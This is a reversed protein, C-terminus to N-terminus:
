EALWKLGNARLFAHIELVHAGYGKGDGNGSLVGIVLGRRDLLPGGSRGGASVKAVEWCRTAEREGPKQVRREVAREERCTPADGESCGVALAVVEAGDPVRNPPCLRATGPMPDRTALRLVALDAGAARALVEASRYVRAPEPYSKASFTAVELSDAEAVVHAATLVYVFPGEQKVIVGSGESMKARNTVRVTATIAASQDARTFTPSDLVPLDAPVLLLLPLLVM